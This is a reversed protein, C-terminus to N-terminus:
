GVGRTFDALSDIVDSTPPKARLYGAEAFSLMVVARRSPRVDITMCCPAACKDMSEHGVFSTVDVNLGGTEIEGALHRLHAAIKALRASQARGDARVVVAEGQTIPGFAEAQVTATSEAPFCRPCKDRNHEYPEFCRRCQRYSLLRGPLCYFSELEM